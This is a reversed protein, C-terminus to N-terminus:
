EAILITGVFPGIHEPVMGEKSVRVMHRDIPTLARGLKAEADFAAGATTHHCPSHKTGSNIPSPHNSRVCAPKLGAIPM